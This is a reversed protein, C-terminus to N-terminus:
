FTFGEDTPAERQFARKVASLEKELRAIIKERQEDTSIYQNANALPILQQLRKIAQTGRHRALRVFKEAKNEPRMEGTVADKVMRPQPKKKEGNGALPKPKSGKSALKDKDHLTTM